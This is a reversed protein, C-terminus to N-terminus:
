ELTIRASRIIRGWRELESRIRTDFEAPTSGVIELGQEAFREKVEPLSLAKLIGANLRAIVEHPTKAPALIGVWSEAVFGQVTQSMPSVGPLAPSPKESTVALARLRGAKWHGIISPVTAFMAEVHGGVLDTLASAAGKYPVHTVDVRATLKLLEVLLRSPSGPGVTACNIAGPRSKALRLFEAANKVPLGPNVVLVLPGRVLLSIPTLDSATDYEIKKFLHPNTVHSDFVALLTYGDPPSKVVVATGLTGGAGPRNDIIFQQGLAESLKAAVLRAAIDALGSPANPVIVRVPKVPYLQAHTPAALVIASVVLAANYTM